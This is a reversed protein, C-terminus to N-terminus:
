SLTRRPYRLEIAKPDQTKILLLSDSSLVDVVPHYIINNWPTVSDSTTPFLRFRAEIQRNAHTLHANQQFYYCM